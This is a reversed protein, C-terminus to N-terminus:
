DSEEGPLKHPSNLIFQEKNRDVFRQLEAMTVGSFINKLKDEYYLKERNVSFPNEKEITSRIKMRQEPVLYRCTYIDTILLYM